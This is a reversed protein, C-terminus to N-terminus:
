IQINHGFLINDNDDDNNDKAFSNALLYYCWPFIDLETMNDDGSTM